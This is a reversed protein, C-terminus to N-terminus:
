KHSSLGGSTAQHLHCPVKARPMRIAKARIVCCIGQFPHVDVPNNSCDFARLRVMLNLMLNGLRTMACTM